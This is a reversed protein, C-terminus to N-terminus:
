VELNDPYCFITWQIIYVMSAKKFVCFWNRLWFIIIRNRIGFYRGCLNVVICPFMEKLSIASTTNYDKWHVLPCWIHRGYGWPFSNKNSVWNLSFLASPFSPCHYSSQWRTTFFFKHGVGTIARRYKTLSYTYDNRVKRSVIM